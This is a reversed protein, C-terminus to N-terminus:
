VCQEYAFAPFRNGSDLERWEKARRSVLAKPLRNPPLFLGDWRLERRQAALRDHGWIAVACNTTVLRVTHSASANLADEGNRIM